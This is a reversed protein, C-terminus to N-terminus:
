VCVGPRAPPRPESPAKPTGPGLDKARRQTGASSGCLAPRVAGAEPSRRESELIPRTPSAPRSARTAPGGRWGTWGGGVATRQDLGLDGGAVAGTSTRAAPPPDRPEAPCRWGCCPRLAACPLPRVAAAAAALERWGGVAGGRARARAGPARRPAPVRGRARAPGM